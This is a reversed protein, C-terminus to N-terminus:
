SISLAILWQALFYTTMFYVQANSISGKFRDIALISDSAMFFLSGIFAVLSGSPAFGMWRSFAQWGMILLVGAYVAVPIKMEKLFPLLLSFLIAGYIFFPIIYIFSFLSFGSQTFAIIYFIHAVLFSLLGAIFRDSPLMLFIDGALSFILGIIILYKYYPSTTTNTIASQYFAIAIIFLMTLPKFIYFNTTHKKAKIHLIASVLTLLSLIITVM